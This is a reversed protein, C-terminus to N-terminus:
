VESLVEKAYGERHKTLFRPRSYNMARRRLKKNIDLFRIIMDVAMPYHAIRGFLDALRRQSGFHKQYEYSYARLRDSDQSYGAISQALLQGSQLAVSIGAGMITNIFASSNGVRWMGNEYHVISNRVPIQVSKWPSVRMATIMVNHLHPSQRIWNTLVKQPDQGKAKFYQSDVVYCVNVQDNEFPNIGVHGGECCHLMVRKFAQPIGQYVACIGLQTKSLRVSPSHQGSADIVHRSRLNFEKNNGYHDVTVEFGHSNNYINRVQAGECVEVGMAKVVNLLLSDLAKRSVGLAKGEIPIVTSAGQSSTLVSEEIVCAGQDLLKPWIGLDTLMSENEPGIFGGCTKHRPFSSKDIIVVKMGRKALGLACSSGAPGAGIILVDVEKM